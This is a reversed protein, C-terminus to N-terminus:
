CNHEILMIRIIGGILMVSFKLKIRFNIVVGNIQIAQTALFRHVLLKIISLLTRLKFVRRQLLPVKMHLVLQVFCGM